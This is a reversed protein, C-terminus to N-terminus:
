PTTARQGAARNRGIAALPQTKTEYDHRDLSHLTEHITRVGHLRAAVADLVELGEAMVETGIGDGPLVAIKWTRPAAPEAPSGSVPHRVESPSFGPDPSRHLAEPRAHMALVLLLLM